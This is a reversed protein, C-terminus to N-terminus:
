SVRRLSRCGRLRRKREASLRYQRNEELIEEADLEDSCRDIKERLRALERERAWDGLDIIM